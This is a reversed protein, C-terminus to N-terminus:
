RYEVHTDSVSQLTLLTLKQAVFMDRYPAIALILTSNADYFPQQPQLTKKEYWIKGTSRAVLGV